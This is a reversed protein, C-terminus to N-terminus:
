ALYLIKTTTRWLCEDIWTMRQNMQSYRLQVSLHKKSNADSCKYCKTKAYTTRMAFVSDSEFQTWILNQYSNLQFLQKLYSIESRERKKRRTM